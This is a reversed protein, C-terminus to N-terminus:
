HYGVPSTHPEYDEFEWHGLRGVKQAVVEWSNGQCSSCYESLFERLKKYSYERVFLYHRGSMIEETMAQEFWAPTCLMIDFSEEGEGEAPGVMASILIGFPGDPQFKELSPTDPSDLEKLEAHVLTQPM